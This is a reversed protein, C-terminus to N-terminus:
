KTKKTKSYKKLLARLAEEVLDNAPREFDIGLHQVARMLGRALRLGYM